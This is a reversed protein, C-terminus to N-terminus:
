AKLSVTLTTSGSVLIKSGCIHAVKGRGKGGGIPQFAQRSASSVRFELLM